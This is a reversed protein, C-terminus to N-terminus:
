ATAASPAPEGEGLIEAVPRGSEKEIAAELRLVHGLLVAHSNFEQVSAQYKPENQAAEAQQYYKKNM